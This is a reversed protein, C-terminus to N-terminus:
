DARQIVLTSSNLYRSDELWCLILIRGEIFVLYVIEPISVYFFFFIM